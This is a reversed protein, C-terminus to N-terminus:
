HAVPTLSRRLKRGCIVRGRQDLTADGALVAREVVQSWEGEFPKRSEAPLSLIAVDRARRYRKLRRELVTRDQQVVGATTVRRALCLFNLDTHSVFVSEFGHAALAGTLATADFTQLHFPNLVNFMSQDRDLYEIEDPENYLYLHGGVKLREGVTKLFDGPRVAHTLMHNSVVLDFMGEYPITFRDFDILTDAPLNYLSRIVYQQSEFIPLTAAECGYLRQLAASIAGTRTRIELVRADQLLLLSGLLEVHIGAALRDRLAGSIWDKRHVPGHESVFIGPKLRRQLENRDADTLKRPNLLGSAHDTRGLNEGFHSLLVRFRNGVPRRAAFVVGCQHCLSYNYVQSTADPAYRHILFRNYECVLSAHEHGCIPCAALTWWDDKPAVSPESVPVVAFAGNLEPPTRDPETLQTAGSSRNMVLELRRLLLGEDAMQRRVADLKKDLKGLRREIGKLRGDLVSFVVRGIRSRLARAFEWLRSLM